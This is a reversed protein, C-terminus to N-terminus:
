ARPNDRNKFKHLKYRLWTKLGFCNLILAAKDNQFAFDIGRGSIGTHNFNALVHEKYIFRFSSDGCLILTLAFDASIKYKTDFTYKTFVKAPYIMALHYPGFKAFQYRNLEGLRKSGEAFVNGYYIADPDALDAAMASFGPLLVDDAGMFYVWQGTVYNLGKNMADYVGEDKESRWYAILRSNKKIIEVTEDESNGDIVIVELAPHTQKFISDLCNQLTQAANYTPIIVSIKSDALKFYSPYKQSM